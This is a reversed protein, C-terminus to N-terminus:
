ILQFNDIFFIKYNFTNHMHFGDVLIGFSDIECVGEKASGRFHLPSLHVKAVREGM